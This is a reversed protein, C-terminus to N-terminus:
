RGSNNPAASGATPTSSINRKWLNVMPQAQVEFGAKVGSVLEQYNDLKSDVIVLDSKLKSLSQFNRNESPIHSIIKEFNGTKVPYM